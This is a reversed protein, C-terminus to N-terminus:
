TFDIKSFARSVAVRSNICWLTHHLPHYAYIMTSRNDIIIISSSNRSSCKLGYVYDIQLDNVYPTQHQSIQSKSQNFINDLTYLFKQFLLVIFYNVYCISYHPLYRGPCFKDPDPTIESGSTLRSCAVLDVQALFHHVPGHHHPLPSGACLINVRLNSRDLKLGPLNKILKLREQQSWNTIAPSFPKDAAGSLRISPYSKIPSM